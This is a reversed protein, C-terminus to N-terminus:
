YWEHYFIAERSNDMYPVSQATEDEYRIQKMLERSVKYYGCNEVNGIYDYFTERINYAKRWYHVEQGYVVLMKEKKQVVYKNTIEKETFDVDYRQGGEAMFTYSFGKAGISQGVLSTNLPIKNAKKLKVLDVYSNVVNIASMYPELDKYMTPYAKFEKEGFMLVDYGKYPSIDEIEDRTKNNFVALDKQPIKHIRYLYMDLGM